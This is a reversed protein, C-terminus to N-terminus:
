CLIPLSLLLSLLLSLSFFTRDSKSSSHRCILCIFVTKLAFLEFQSKSLTLFHFAYGLRHKFTAVFRRVCRIVVFPPAPSLKIRWVPCFPNSSFRRFHMPTVHIEDFHWDFTLKSKQSLSDVSAVHLHWALRSRVFSLSFAPSSALTISNSLFFRWFSLHAVAATSKSSTQKTQFTCDGFAKLFCVFETLLVFNHTCFMFRFIWKSLLDRRVSGTGFVRCLVPWLTCTSAFSYLPGFTFCIILNSSCASCANPTLTTFCPVTQLGTQNTTALGLDIRDDLTRNQTRSARCLVLAFTTRTLSALGAFPRFDPRRVCKFFLRVFHLFLFVFSIRVAISRSQVGKALAILAFQFCVSLPSHMRVCRVFAAVVTIKFQNNKGNVWAASSPLSLPSLLCFQLLTPEYFAIPSTM